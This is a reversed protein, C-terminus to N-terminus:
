PHFACGMDCGTKCEYQVFRKDAAFRFIENIALDVHLANGEARNRALRDTEILDRALTKNSAFIVSAGILNKKPFSASPLPLSCSFM